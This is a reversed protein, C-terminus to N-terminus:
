GCEESTPEREIVCSRRREASASRQRVRPPARQAGKRALPASLAYCGPRGAALIQCPVSAETPQDIVTRSQVALFTRFSHRRPRLCREAPWWCDDVTVSHRSWRSWCSRMQQGPDQRRDPAFHAVNEVEGFSRLLAFFMAIAFGAAPGIVMRFPCRFGSSPRNINSRM